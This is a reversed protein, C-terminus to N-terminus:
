ADGEELAIEQPPVIVVYGDAVHIEPVVMRTFPYLLTTGAPERVEILDGAGFNPIASVEGLVTGDPLRAALGILDTHYFDDEDEIMPLREREVYLEVGNLREADTRDKVGDLTAIVVNGSLRASRLRVVLGPRNTSLPSYAAIAEPEATFSTIRLEGKIGHAAGIRGVLVLKAATGAM